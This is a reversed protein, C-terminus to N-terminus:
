SMAQIAVDMQLMLLLGKKSTEDALSDRLVKGLRYKFNTIPDPQQKIQVHPRQAPDELEKLVGMIPLIYVSRDNMIEYMIERAKKEMDLTLDITNM